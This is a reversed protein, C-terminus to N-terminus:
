LNPTSSLSSPSHGPSSNLDQKQSPNWNFLLSKKPKWTQSDGPPTCTWYIISKRSLRHDSTWRFSRWTVYSGRSRHDWTPSLPSSKAWPNMQIWFCDRTAQQALSAWILAKPNKLFGVPIVGDLQDRLPSTNHNLQDLTHNRSDRSEIQTSTNPRDISRELCSSRQNSRTHRLSREPSRLTGLTASFWFTELPTM